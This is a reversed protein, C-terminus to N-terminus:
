MMQSKEVDDGIYLNKKEKPSIATNTKNYEITTIIISPRIIIDM